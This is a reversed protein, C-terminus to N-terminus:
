NGDSLHLNVGVGYNFSDGMWSGITSFSIGVKDEYSNGSLGFVLPLDIENSQFGFVLPSSSYGGLDYIGAVSFKGLSTEKKYRGMIGVPHQDYNDRSGALTPIGPLDLLSGASSYGSLHAAGLSIQSNDGNKNILFADAAGMYDPEIREQFHTRGTVEGAEDYLAQERTEFYQAPFNKLQSTPDVGLDLGHSSSHEWEFSGASLDMRFSGYYPHMVRALGNGTSLFNADIEANLGFLSTSFGQLGWGYGQGTNFQPSFLSSIVLQTERGTPDVFKLPNNRVYAYAPETPVPDISTFKGLDSDYYRAKFYHLDSDLEKGTFSFRNDINLAQGFPLSKSEFDSGLRDQFKYEDNVAILKSGAYYHVEKGSTELVTTQKEVEFLEPIAIEKAFSIPM